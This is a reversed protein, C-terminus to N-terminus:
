NSLNIKVLCILYKISFFIINNWLQTTHYFVTINKLECELLIWLATVRNQRKAPSVIQYFAVQLHDLFGGIPHERAICM